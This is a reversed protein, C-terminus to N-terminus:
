AREERCARLAEAYLDLHEKGSSPDYWGCEEAEEDFTQGWFQGVTTQNWAAYEGAGLGARRLVEAQGGLSCEPHQRAYQDFAAAVPEVDEARVCVRDMTSLLVIAEHLPMRQDRATNWVKSAADGNISLPFGDLGHYRKAIDDWVCMAGLWSNGTQGIVGPNAGGLRYLVTASM